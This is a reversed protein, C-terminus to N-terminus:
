VWLSVLVGVEQLVSQVVGAWEAVQTREKRLSRKAVAFGVARMAVKCFASMLSWPPRRQDKRRPSSVVMVMCGWDDKQRKRLPTATSM